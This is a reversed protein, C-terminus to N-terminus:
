EKLPLSFFSATVYLFSGCDTLGPEIIRMASPESTRLTTSHLASDTMQLMSFSWDIPSRLFQLRGFTLTSRGTRCGFSMSSKCFKPHTCPTSKIAADNTWDADSTSKIRLVNSASGLPFFEPVKHLTRHSSFFMIEGTMLIITSQVM